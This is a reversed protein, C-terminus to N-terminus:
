KIMGHNRAIRSIEYFRKNCYEFYWRTEFFREYIDIGIPMGNADKEGLSITDEQNKKKEEVQVFCSTSLKYFLDDNGLISSDCDLSILFFYEYQKLVPSSIVNGKKAIPNAKKMPIGSSFTFFYSTDSEVTRQQIRLGFFCDANFYDYQREHEIFESIINGLANNNLIYVNSFEIKQPYSVMPLLFLLFFLSTKRM